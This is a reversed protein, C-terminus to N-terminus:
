EQVMSLYRRRRDASLSLIEPESWGYAGALVHVETLTRDAWDDLEDWFYAGIDFRREFRHGCAPCQLAVRCDALPDRRSMEDQLRDVIAPPLGAADVTQGDHSASRVCREILGAVARQRDDDADALAAVLDDARPMAYRLEWADCRLTATSGGGDQPLGAGVPEDDPAGLLDRATFRLQLTEGCAACDAVTDLEPGFLQERLAALWRDCEGIPLAGWHGPEVEPWAQRLLVLPRRGPHHAQAEEWAQLMAQAGLTNM